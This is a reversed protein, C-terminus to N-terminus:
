NENMASRQESSLSRPFFGERLGSGSEITWNWKSPYSPVVEHNEFAFSALHHAM